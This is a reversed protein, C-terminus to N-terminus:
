LDGFLSIRFVDNLYGTAIPALKHLIITNVMAMLCDGHWKAAGLRAVLIAPTEGALTRSLEWDLDWFNYDFVRGTFIPAHDVSVHPPAKIPQDTVTESCQLLISHLFQYDQKKDFGLSRVYTVFKCFPAPLGECLEEVTILTKKHLVVEEDNGTSNFQQDLAVQQTDLDDRRSQVNGQQGSISAFPLTGVISHNTTFPIHLYTAPNRFLQALGFDILFLTPPLNDARIMFNGPKIDCHIYHRDHLSQVALLMQTAYSFTKRHDFELQDILDGLSTGLHNLVIVEYISSHAKSLQASMIATAYATIQGLNLRLGSTLHLFSNLDDGSNCTHDRPNSPVKLVFPDAELKMEIVFDM